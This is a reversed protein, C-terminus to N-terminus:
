GGKLKSIINNLVHFYAPSEMERSRVMMYCTIMGFAFTIFWAVNSVGRVTIHFWSFIGAVVSFLIWARGTISQLSTKSIDAFFELMTAIFFTEIIPILIGDTFFGLIKSSALPLAAQTKMLAIMQSFAQGLGQGAAVAPYFGQLVFSSLYYIIFLLAYAGLAYGIAKPTNGSINNIFLKKRPLIVVGLLILAYVLGVRENFSIVLFATVVSVIYLMKIDFQKAM